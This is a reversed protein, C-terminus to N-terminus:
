AGVVATIISFGNLPGSTAIAVTITEVVVDFQDTIEYEGAPVNYIGSLENYHSIRIGIGWTEDANFYINSGADVKKKPPRPYPPNTIDPM